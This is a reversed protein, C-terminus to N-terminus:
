KQTKIQSDTRETRGAAETMQLLDDIATIQHSVLIM